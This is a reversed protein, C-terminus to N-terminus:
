GLAGHRRPLVLPRQVRRPLSVAARPLELSCNRALWHLVCPFLPALLNSVKRPPVPPMPCRRLCLSTVPRRHHLEPQALVVGTLTPRSFWPPFPCVSPHGLYSAALRLKGHSQVPCPRSPPWQVPPPRRRTTASTRPERPCLSLSPSPALCLACISSPLHALLARPSPRPRLVRPRPRTWPSSITPSLNPVRQCTPDTPCLSLSRRARSCRRRCALGV